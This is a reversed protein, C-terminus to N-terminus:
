GVIHYKRAKFEAGLSRALKECAELDVKPHKVATCITRIGEKVCERVFDLLAPFAKEGFAPKCLTVYEENSSANLSVSVVDVLGKIEPVLNREWVLSALGNTNLRIRTGKKRLEEAVEKVQALRLLPEGFGCFVVEDYGTPDGVAELIESSEPDRELGLYYGRVVPDEERPCFICRNTCKNTMNIYLSNRIKYVIAPERRVEMGMARSFNMTTTRVVDEDSVGQANAIARVIYALYAPENRKGRFPHPALYPCDTELVIARPPLEAVTRSLRSNKFTVVGGVGIHFGLALVQKAMEVDGSFAHFIGTYAEGEAELIAIVEDFADRCHIIIPKNKRQSLAIQKRFVDLQIARPSLDRYFDLGIEGVGLIGPEELLREIGTEVDANYTKADHPHVGVVGYIFPYKAAFEATEQSSPLDFGVNVMGSVGAEIARSLVAELDENYASDNLHCHSDIM